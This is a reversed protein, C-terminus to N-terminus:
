MISELLLSTLLQYELIYSSVSTSIIRMIHVSSIFTNYTAIALRESSYYLPAKSIWIAQSLDSGM